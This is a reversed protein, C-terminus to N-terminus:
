KRARMNIIKSIHKPHINFMRGLAVCGFSKNYPVYSTRIFLVDEDTLKAMYNNSGLSSKRLGIDVSHKMNELRTTWELNCLNNNLKNGDKHNVENKNEISGCFSELVCKHVKFHKKSDTGLSVCTSLYGKIPNLKYIRKTKANRLKGTDSVEIRWGYDVGNYIVGTWKESM